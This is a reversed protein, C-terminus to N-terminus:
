LRPCNQFTEQYVSSGEGLVAHQMGALPRTGDEAGLLIKLLFQAYNDPPDGDGFSSTCVILADFNDKISALEELEHAYANGEHVECSAVNDHKKFEEGMKIALRECTRTQSGYIILLRAKM